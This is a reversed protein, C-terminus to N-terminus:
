SWSSWLGSLSNLTSKLSSKQYSLRTNINSKAAYSANQKSRELEAIDNRLLKIKSYHEKAQKRAVPGNGFLMDKTKNMIEDYWLDEPIESSFNASSIPVSNTNAVNATIKNLKEIAEDLNEAYKSRPGKQQIHQIVRVCSENFSNITFEEPDIGFTLVGQTANNELMIIPSIGERLAYGLEQNVSASDSAQKTLIAVMHDSSKIEEIIKNRILEDYKKQNEAEYGDIGNKELANKLTSSLMKDQESFTHSIFVKM